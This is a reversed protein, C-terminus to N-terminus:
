PTITPLASRTSPITRPIYETPLANKINLNETKGLVSGNTQSQMVLSKDLLKITTGTGLTLPNVKFTLTLINGSGSIAQGKPPIGEIYSVRGSVPDINKYLTQVDANNNGWFSATPTAISVDMLVKPDYLLEIQVGSVQNHPAKLVVNVKGSLSALSSITFTSPDFYLSSDRQVKTPIPTTTVTQNAVTNKHSDLILSYIVLISTLITLFIILLTTRLPM